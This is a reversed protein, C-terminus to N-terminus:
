SRSPAPPPPTRYSEPLGDADAARTARVLTVTAAVSAHATEIVQASDRVALLVVLREDDAFSASPSRVDIVTAASATTVTFAGEGTGYTALVDVREGPVLEGDLAREREVPLAYERGGTEGTGGPSAAALVASRQVLEGARVPALAVAGDLSAPDSLVVPRAEAPLTAPRSEVDARGLSEGPRLDRAAVLVTDAAREDRGSAVLTGLVAGAVLLGGVVSRTSLVRRRAGTV